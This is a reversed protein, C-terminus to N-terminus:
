VLSGRSVMIVGTALIALLLLFDILSDKSM